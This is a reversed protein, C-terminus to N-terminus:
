LLEGPNTLRWWAGPDSITTSLALPVSITAGNVTFTASGVVTGKTALLVRNTTITSHVPTGKWVVVSSRKTAVVQTTTGWATRYSAFPEGATALTVSTFGDQVTKVLSTIQADITAHDPGDLIVGILTITRGGIRYKSSFLLSSGQNTGTKIGDIGLQGLITNTNTITGVVPLTARTTKILQSVVPNALALKGLTILDTPTSRNALNLGTSDTLVTSSMGNQALWANAVPLFNAESGFAWDALARAYNNASAVLAVTMVDRESMSGGVQIPYTDGDRAIYSQRIAEDASTFPIAPGADGAALPKKQLVVLTTIIKTISAIPQPSTSGGQALVGPFGVASIASAGYGPMSLVPAVSTPATYPTTVASVSSLPALLTLPLYFGLAVVVAITGFV